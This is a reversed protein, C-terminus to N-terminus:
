KWIVARALMSKLVTLERNVTAAAVTRRRRAVWQEIAFTDLRDLSHAGFARDLQDLTYRTKPYGRHHYAVTERYHRVLARFTVAPPPQATELKFRGQVIEGLRAHLAERAVTKTIGDVDRGIRERVERGKATYRIYWTKGNRHPRSFVCSV